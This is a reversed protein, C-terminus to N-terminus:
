IGPLPQRDVRLKEALVIAQVRRFDEAISTSIVLYDFHRAQAIEQRANALRKRIVEPRDTGRKRLRAQLIELSPPTLFVQVLAGKL